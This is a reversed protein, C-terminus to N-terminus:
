ATPKGQHKKKNASMKSLALSLCDFVKKCLNTHGFEIGNPQIPIPMAPSRRFIPRGTSRIKMLHSSAGENTCSTRRFRAPGASPIFPLTRGCHTLLPSQPALRRRGAEAWRDLGSERQIELIFELAGGTPEM